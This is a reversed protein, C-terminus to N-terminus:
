HVVTRSQGKPPIVALTVQYGKDAFASAENTQVFAFSRQCSSCDLFDGAKMEPIQQCHTRQDELSMARIAARQGPDLDSRDALAQLDKMSVPAYKWASRGLPEGYFIAQQLKYLPKGCHYCVVISGRPYM